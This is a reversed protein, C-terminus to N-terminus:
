FIDAQPNHTQAGNGKAIKARHQRTIEDLRTFWTSIAKAGRNHDGAIREQEAWARLMNMHSIFAALEDSKKIQIAHAHLQSFLQSWSNAETGVQQLLSRNTELACFSPFLTAPPNTKPTAPPQDPAPDLHKADKETNRAATQRVTGNAAATGQHVTTETAASEKPPEPAPKSNTAHALEPETNTAPNDDQPVQSSEVDALYIQKGEKDLGRGFANGILTAARKGADTVASKIALEYDQGMNASAPNVLRSSVGTGDRFATSGDPFRIILRVDAQAVILIRDEAITKKQKNEWREILPRVDKETVIRTGLIQLDWNNAHFILDLQHLHYPNKVYHVEQRAPGPRKELDTSPIPQWLKAEIENQLNTTMSGPSRLPTTSM